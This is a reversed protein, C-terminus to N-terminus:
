KEVRIRAISYVLFKPAAFIVRREDDRDLRYFPVAVPDPSEPSSTLISVAKMGKPVVFKIQAATEAIPKEDKIGTGPSRKM